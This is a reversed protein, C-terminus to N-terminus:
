FNVQIAPVVGNGLEYVNSSYDAYGIIDVGRAIGSYKSASRLWWWGGYSSNGSKNCHNALAYDTQFRVRSNGVGKEDYLTFYVENDSALDKVKAVVKAKTTTVDKESLLFIKDDTDDTKASQEATTLKKDADITSDATNEVKTTQIKNKQIETFASNYFTENLWSRIYSNKYNGDAENWVVNATLIKKAHLCKKYNAAISKGNEEKQPEWVWIWMWEIPEVKFYKVSNASKKAIRSGDSYKYQWGSGYANEECEAYWAGDSGLYYDVGAIETNKINKDVTVDNAKITQPYVGFTAKKSDFDGLFELSVPITNEKDCVKCRQWGNVKDGKVENVFEHGSEDSKEGCECVHYHTNEEQVWEESFVHVHDGDYGNMNMNIGSNINVSCGMFGLAAVILIDTRFKKM